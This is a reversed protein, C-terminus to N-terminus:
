AVVPPLADPPPPVSPAPGTSGTSGSSDEKRTSGAAEEGGGGSDQGAVAPWAVKVLAGRHQAPLAVGVGLYHATGMAYLWLADAEDKSSGPYGLRRVAATLVEEKSANGRGCAYQKLNAPPVDVHPIALDHLMLRIVGGLEGLQHARNAAGKPSGFSYGEIIVVDAGLIEDRIEDRLRALRAMGQGRGIISRVGAASACGTATVSPDLAVIIM